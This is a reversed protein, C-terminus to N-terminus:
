FVWYYIMSFYERIYGFIKLYWYPTPAAIAVPTLGNDKMIQRARYLHFENSVVGIQTVGQPFLPLSFRVNDATNTSQDELLIRNEVIGRRVLYRRMAEAEAITEGQGQGGAVVVQADPYKELYSLAAQLRAQLMLSPTEGNLGAGLVLVHSLPQEPDSHAGSLLFLEVIIFNLVFLVACVVALRGAWQAIRGGASGAPFLSLGFLLALLVSALFALQSVFRGSPLRSVAVAVAVALLTLLLLPIRWQKKM